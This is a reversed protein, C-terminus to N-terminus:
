DKSKLSLELYNGLMDLREVYTIQYRKLNSGTYAVWSKTVPHLYHTVDLYYGDKLYDSLDVYVDLETADYFRKVITQFRFTTPRSHMTPVGNIMKIDKGRADYFFGSIPKTTVRTASQGGPISNASSTLKYLSVKVNDVIM